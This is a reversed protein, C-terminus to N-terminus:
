RISKTSTIKQALYLPGITHLRLFHCVGYQTLPVHVDRLCRKRVRPGRYRVFFNATFILWPVKIRHFVVGGSSLCGVDSKGHSLTLSSPTMQLCVSALRNSLRPVRYILFYKPCFIGGEGCCADYIILSDILIMLLTNAISHKRQVLKPHTPTHTPTHNSIM